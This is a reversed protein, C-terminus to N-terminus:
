TRSYLDLVAPSFYTKNRPQYNPNLKKLRQFANSANKLLDKDQSGSLLYKSAYACGLLFHASPEKSSVELASSLYGIAGDFDGEFYKRAGNKMMLKAAEAGADVPPAIVVPPKEEKKIETVTTSEPKTTVPPKQVQLETIPKEEQKEEKKTEQVPPNVPVTIVPPNNTAVIPEKSISLQAKALTRASNMRAYLDQKRQIAGTKESVEFERVAAEYNKQSFYALGLYYHPFYDGFKMGYFKINSGEDNKQSIAAQLRPIAESTQGKKILDVGAEYDKYWEAQAVVPLLVFWVGWILLALRRIKLNSAWRNLPEQM